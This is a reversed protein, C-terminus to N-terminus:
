MSPFCPRMCIAELGTECYLKNLAYARSQVFTVLCNRERSRFEMIRQEAVSLSDFVGCVM